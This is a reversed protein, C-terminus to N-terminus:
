RGAGDGGYAAGAPSLLTGAASSQSGLLQGDIKLGYLSDPSDHFKQRTGAVSGTYRPDQPREHGDIFEAVDWAEQDSLSYGRRLPMNAKIFGAANSVQHMGAGWNYSDAGWLAPIANPRGAGNPGHCSSCRQAYVAAGRTFDAPQSPPALKLFGAGPLRKGIPAGTALWYSYTELAVLVPDGAPPMAGNMSYRFCEQLREAYTNVHGNKKRFAPYLGYAGWLPAANARRGGDLHCSACQLHNGVFQPVVTDTHEFIDRGRLVMRDFDNDALLDEAPPVFAGASTSPVAEVEPPLAAAHGVGFSGILGAAL